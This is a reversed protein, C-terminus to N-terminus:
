LSTKIVILIAPTNFFIPATKLERAGPNVGTNKSKKQKSKEYQGKQEDKISGRRLRPPPPPM